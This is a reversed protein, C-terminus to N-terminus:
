RGLVAVALDKLYTCSSGGFPRCNNVLRRLAGALFVKTFRVDLLSKSFKMTRLQDLFGRM